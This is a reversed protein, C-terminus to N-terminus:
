ARQKGLYTGNPAFKAKFRKGNQTFEATYITSAPEAEVKWQVDTASPFKSSFSQLVAPPIGDAPGPNVIVDSIANNGSFAFSSIATLLFAAFVIKKLSKILM